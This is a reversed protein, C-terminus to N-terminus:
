NVRFGSQAASRATERFFQQWTADRAAAVPNPAPPMGSFDLIMPASGMPTPMTPMTPAGFVAGTGVATGVGGSAAFAASLGRSLVINLATMALSKLVSGLTFKGGALTHTLGSLLAQALQEGTGVWPELNEPETMSATLKDAAGQLMTNARDTGILGKDLAGMIKEVTMAFQDAPTQLSLFLTNLEAMQERSTELSANWNDWIVNMKGLATADVFSRFFLDLQPQLNQMLRSSEKLMEDWARMMVLDEGTIGLRFPGAAASGTSLGPRQPVGGKLLPGRPGGPVTGAMIGSITRSAAAERARRATDEIARALMDQEKAADKTQDRLRNYAAGILGIGTIAALTVLGGTSFQLLISAIRGLPGPVGAAAFAMGGMARELRNVMSASTM